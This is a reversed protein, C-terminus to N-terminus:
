GKLEHLKEEVLEICRYLVFEVPNLACSIDVALQDYDSKNEAIIGTVLTRLPLLWESYARQLNSRSLVGTYNTKARSEAILVYRYLNLASLVADSQEPLTPPGGNPPRLVFEVVELVGANWISTSLSLKEEQPVENSVHKFSNNQLNERVCDLLIAIMSSSSSNRILHELIHLRLSAPNDALVRKIATFANKRLAADPAYMIVSVIAQLAAILNPSNFSCIIDENTQQDYVADTIVLLFDMAHKKLKWPLQGMSFIHRLMAIAQWRRTQTNRLEDRLTSFDQEAAQAVEDSIHGWIVSLVAGHKVYSTCNMYDDSDGRLIHGMMTDVDHGTILDLYLLGCYPFFCSLRLILPICNAFQHGISISVLTLTQLVFLGLLARLQENARGELKKCTAEISTAIDVAGEFLDHSSAGRDDPDVSAAKLTSVIVPVAEKVVEFQRRQLSPFVKSLGRLLPAVYGPADITKGYSDLAECFISIMDRPSCKTIFQDIISEVIVLCRKSVGSFKALAKPLEFSLADIVVQDLSTNNIHSCIHSLVTIANNRSEENDPDSIAADSISNLFEVLEAISAESRRFDGSEVAESCSEFSQQLHSLLPEASSSGHVDSTEASMKLTQGATDSRVCRTSSESGRGEFYDNLAGGKHGAEKEGIGGCGEVFGWPLGRPRLWRRWGM